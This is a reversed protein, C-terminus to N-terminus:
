KCKRELVVFHESTHSGKATLDSCCLAEHWFRRLACPVTRQIEVFPNNLTNRYRRVDVAVALLNLTCAGMACRAYRRNGGDKMCRIRARRARNGNNWEGARSALGCEVEGSVYGLEM